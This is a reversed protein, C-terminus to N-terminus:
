LGPRHDFGPVRSCRLCALDPDGGQLGVAVAFVGIRGVFRDSIRVLPRSRPVGLVFLIGAHVAAIEDGLAQIRAAHGPVAGPVRCRVVPDVAAARDRIELFVAVEHAGIVRIDKPAVRDVVVPVAVADVVVRRDADAPVAGAGGDDVGMGAVVVM